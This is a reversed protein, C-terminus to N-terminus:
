QFLLLGILKGFNHITFSFFCQCLLTWEEHSHDTIWFDVIRSNIFRSRWSHWRFLIWRNGFSRWGNLRWCWPLYYDIRVLICHFSMSDIKIVRINQIPHMATSWCWWWPNAPWKGKEKGTWIISRFAINRNPINNKKMASKKKQTRQSISNFSSNQNWKKPKPM